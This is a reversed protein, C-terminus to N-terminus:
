LGRPRLSNSTIVYQSYLYLTLTKREYETKWSQSKEADQKLLSPYPFFVDVDTYRERQFAYFSISTMGWTM